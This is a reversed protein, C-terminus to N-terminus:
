FPAGCGLGEFKWSVVRGDKMSFHTACTIPVATPVMAGPVVTGVSAGGGATHTVVVTGAAVNGTRDQLSDNRVVWTLVLGDAGLAVLTPKGWTAELDAQSAGKWRQLSAEYTADMSAKSVCGTALLAAPLLLCALLRNM